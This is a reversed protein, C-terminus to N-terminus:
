NREWNVSALYLETEADAEANLAARWGAKEDSTLCDSLPRGQMYMDAGMRRLLRRSLNVVETENGKSIAANPALM